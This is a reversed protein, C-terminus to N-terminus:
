EKMEDLLRDRVGALVTACIKRRLRGICSYIVKM